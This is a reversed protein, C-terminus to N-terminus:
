NLVEMAVRLAEDLKGAVKDYDIVLPKPIRYQPFKEAVAPAVPSNHSDSEALLTEVRGSLIFDILEGAEAPHRGGALRMVTNPIALVGDGGQDLFNLAIPWDNRQGAYVDDTDTLCVDAQGTAVMRVATSNGSALRVGNAKLGALIEKARADGYHVFWSAVDGGTTGFAPKAMVIRGKWKPDLLDELSKPAEDAKVARTNYCIVRARMGLAYWRGAPDAFAAPWSKTAESSYPDLLGKNALRITYFIESSWFVDAGGRGAEAEIRRVLGVTKSAELDDRARVKIGTTKEFEALIPEAFAQDASCYVVVEGGDDDADGCAPLMWALLALVSAGLICLGASTSKVSAIRGSQAEGDGREGPGTPATM